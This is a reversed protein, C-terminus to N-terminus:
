SGTKKQRQLKQKRKDTDEKTERKEVPFLSAIYEISKEAFEMENESFAKFSAIEVVGTTQNKHRVPMIYLHTPSSIGLGSVVKMYNEPVENLFISKGQEAVQGALGEGINFTKKREVLDNLAYGAKFILTKEELSYYVGQGASLKGCLATLWQNIQKFPDKENKLHALFDVELQLDDSQEKEKTAKKNENEAQRKQTYIILPEKYKLFYILSGLGTLLTFFMLFSLTTFAPSAKEFDSYSLVQYEYILVNGLSLLTYITYLSFVVFVAIFM